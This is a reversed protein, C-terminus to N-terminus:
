WHRPSRLRRSAKEWRHKEMKESGSEAWKRKKEPKASWGRLRALQDYTGEQGKLVLTVPKNEWKNVNKLHVELRIWERKGSAKIYGGREQGEEQLYIMKRFYSM